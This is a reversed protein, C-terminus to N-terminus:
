IPNDPALQGVAANVAQANMTNLRKVLNGKHYNVFDVMIINPMFQKVGAFNQIQNGHDLIHEVTDKLLNENDTSWMKNNRVKIGNFSPGTTTWYMLGIARGDVGAHRGTRKKNNQDKVSFRAMGKMLWKQEEYNKQIKAKTGSAGASVGGKGYYQLGVFDESYGIATDNTKENLRTWKLIGRQWPSGCANYGSGTFLVIVHGKLEDLTRENLNAAGDDISAPKYIKDGLTTCCADAIQNWNTSKDFKLILFEHKFSRVFEEAQSLISHLTDAESGFVTTHVTTGPNRTLFNPLEVKTADHYTKLEPNGRGFAAIRIDFFRAGCLAQGYIGRDQTKANKGGMSIGADHSGLM